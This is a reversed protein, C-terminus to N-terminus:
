QEVACHIEKVAGFLFFLQCVDKPMTILLTLHILGRATERSRALVECLSKWLQYFL